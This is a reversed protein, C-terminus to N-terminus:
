DVEWLVGWIHKRAVDVFQTLDSDPQIGNAPKKLMAAIIGPDLPTEAKCSISELEGRTIIQTSSTVKSALGLDSFVLNYPLHPVTAHALPVM